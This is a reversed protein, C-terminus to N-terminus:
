HGEAVARIADIIKIYGTCRCLNGSIARRIEDDTPHPNQELLAVASLLMGPTCYGCQVAGHDIFAQQLPHLQGNRALGEVTRITRGHAKMALYLCSNVALGDVLVTCAGCEGEECGIKTGTLGLNERLVTALTDTASVPVEVVQGNVTMRLILNKDM